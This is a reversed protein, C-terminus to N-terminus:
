LRFARRQVTEEVLPAVELTVEDELLREADVPLEV